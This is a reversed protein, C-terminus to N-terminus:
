ARSLPHLNDMGKYVKSTYNKPKPKLQPKPPLTMSKKPLPPPPVQPAAESEESSGALSDESKHTSKQDLFQDISETEEHIADETIFPKFPESADKKKISYSYFKVAQYAAEPNKSQEDHTIMADMMRIWPKPLGELHGTLQNKSVHMGHVVNTPLGIESIKNRESEKARRSGFINKIM